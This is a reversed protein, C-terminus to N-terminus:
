LAKSEETQLIVRVATKLDRAIVHPASRGRKAASHENPVLITRTGAAAGCEVDSDQDGVMWCSALDLKHEAAAKLLLGPKPKRCTCFGSVASVVGNPHHFCYLAAKFRIQRQALHVELRAHVAKLNELSTKGKAYSPQNSVVFLSWGALTLELLAEPVGERIRLAEPERPSEMEGWDAYHVLENLIGDRDLFVASAQKM